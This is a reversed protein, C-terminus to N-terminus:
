GKFTPTHASTKLIFASRPVTRNVSVSTARFLETHDGNQAQEMALVLGYQKDVWATYRFGVFDSDGHLEGEDKEIVYCRRGAVTEEPRLLIGFVGKRAAALDTQWYQNLPDVWGLESRLWDQFPEPDFESSRYDRDTGAPACIALGGGRWYASNLKGDGVASFPEYGTRDVRMLDPAFYRVRIMHAPIRESKEGTLKETLEQFPDQGQYTIIKYSIDLNKIKPWAAGPKYSAQFKDYTMSAKPHQPTSNQMSRVVVLTAVVLGLFLIITFTVVIRTHLAGSKNMVMRGKDVM